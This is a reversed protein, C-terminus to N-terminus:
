CACEMIEKIIKNYHNLSYDIKFKKEAFRRASNKAKEKEAESKNMYSFLTHALDKRDNRVLSSFESELIINTDGVNTAIIFCGCSIAEVLSQSPYNEKVQLSCFVDADKLMFSSEVYGPFFVIDDINRKKSEHKLDKEFYGRGCFYVSYKKERIKDQILDVADLLLWPNKDEDLRAALFVIKRSKVGPKFRNLDTFSSPTITIKKSKFENKLYKESSPYLTDINESIYRLYFSRLFDKIKAKLGSSRRDKNFFLIKWFHWKAGYALHYDAIITLIKIKKFKCLAGIIQMFPSVDFHVVLRSNARLIYGILDFINKAYVIRKFELDIEKRLKDVNKRSDKNGIAVLEVNWGM